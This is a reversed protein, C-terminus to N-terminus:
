RINQKVQQLTVGGLGAALQFPRRLYREVPQNFLHHCAIQFPMPFLVPGASRAATGSTRGAERMIRLYLGTEESLIHFIGSQFYQEDRIYGDSFDDPAGLANKKLLAGTQGAPSMLDVDQGPPQFVMFAGM